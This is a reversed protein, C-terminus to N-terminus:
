GLRLKEMGFGELGLKRVRVRVRGIVAGVQEVKLGKEM